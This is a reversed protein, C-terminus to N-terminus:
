RTIDDPKTFNFMSPYKSITIFLGQFEIFLTDQVLFCYHHEEVSRRLFMFVQPSGIFRFFFFIMKFTKESKEKEM